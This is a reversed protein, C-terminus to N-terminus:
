EGTPGYLVREADSLDTIKPMLEPDKELDNLKAKPFRKEAEVLAVNPSKLGLM